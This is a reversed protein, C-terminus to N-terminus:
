GCGTRPGSSCSRPLERELTRISVSLTSQVVGLRQAARTFSSEEAVAIFHELQRFEM